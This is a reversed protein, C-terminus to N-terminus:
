KALIEWDWNAQTAREAFTELEARQAPTTTPNKLADEVAGKLTPGQSVSSTSGSTLRIVQVVDGIQTIQLTGHKILMAPIFLALWRSRPAQGSWM